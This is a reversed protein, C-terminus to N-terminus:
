SVIPTQVTRRRPLYCPLFLVLDVFRTLRHYLDHKRTKDRELEIKSCSMCNVETVTVGAACFVYRSL